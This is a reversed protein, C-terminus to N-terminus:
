ALEDELARLVDKCEPHLAPAQGAIRPTRPDIKCGSPQQISVVVSFSSFEQTTTYPLHWYACLDPVEQFTWAPTTISSPPGLKCAVLAIMEKFRKLSKGDHQDGYEYWNVSASYVTFEDGLGRARAEAEMATCRRFNTEHEERWSSLSV